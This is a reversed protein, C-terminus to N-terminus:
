RSGRIYNAAEAMAENITKGWKREFYSIAPGENQVYGGQDPPLGMKRTTASGWHHVFAQLAISTKFGALAVRYIYDTDAYAARDYTDYEEDFLGCHDTVRRRLLWCGPWQVISASVYPTDAHRSRVRSAFSDLDGYTESLLYDLNENDDVAMYKLRLAKYRSVMDMDIEVDLDVAYMMSLFVLPNVCAEPAGDISELWKDTVIHDNALLLSDANESAAWAIGQNAAAAVGKNEPNDIFGHISGVALM